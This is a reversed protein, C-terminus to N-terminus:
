AQLEPMSFHLLFTFTVLFVVSYMVIRMHRPQPKHILLKETWFQALFINMLQCWFFYLFYSLALIITHNIAKWVHLFMIHKKM